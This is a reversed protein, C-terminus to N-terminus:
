THRAIKVHAPERTSAIKVHAPERTSAIKVHAPERTSAIKLFFVRLCVCTLMDICVYLCRCRCTHVNEGCQVLKLECAHM